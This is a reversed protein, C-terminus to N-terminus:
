WRLRYFKKAATTPVSLPSMATPLATWNGNLEDAAELQGANWTLTISGSSRAIRLAGSQGTATFYHRAVQAPSLATSYIAAEDIGGQFFRETGTGRAGIAWDANVLLAGVTNTARAVLAANRYLNWAVGDYTAVLHVWNGIDAAPVAYTVVRNAGDYAGAQYQGGSVRLLLETTPTASYGHALINGYGGGSYNTAPKVWAELSVQGSFNLTAQNSITVSQSAGDFEVSTGTLPTAGPMGQVPFGQYTGDCVGFNYLEVATMTYNTDDLPYYAAPADAMVAGKYGGTPLPVVTLTATASTAQGVGNSVVVSYSGGDTSQLAAFALSAATAGAVPAGGKLWQYSLPYSGQAVVRLTFPGGAYRTASAPDQSITPPTSNGFKGVSYHLMVEDASLTRWYVVADDVTGSFFDGATTYTLGAGIRLPWVATPKAVVTQSGALQGNVYLRKSTGDYTAVVHQWEGVAVSGANLDNWIENITDNQNGTRFQWATGSSALEYGRSLFRSRSCIVAHRGSTSSPQVWAELTYGGDFQLAASYPVEVYNNAGFTGATDADGGIAGPTQLNGGAFDVYSGAHLTTQDVATAAGNLEGLRWYGAPGGAMVLAAYTSAPVSLVRLSAPASTAVQGALMVRVSYDAVDGASAGLISCTSSTAVSIEAGGKLWQYTYGTSDAPMTISFTANSGTLVSQERPNIAPTTWTLNATSSLTGGYPNTVGVSYTGIDAATVPSINLISNTCNALNSGNRKWRYSIPPSGASLGVSFSVSTNTVGLLAEVNIPQQGIAPATGSGFVLQQIDSDSLQHNYIRVDDMYGGCPGTSHISVGLQVPLITGSASTALLTGLNASAVITQRNGDVYLVVNSMRAANPCTMAVHHWNGDAVVTNGVMNAGAIEFRLKGRPTSGTSDLTLTYRYTNAATSGYSVLCGGPASANTQYAAPFKVWACVTRSTAGPPGYFDTVVKAISGVPFDLYAQTGGESAPIPPLDTTSWLPASGAVLTGTNTGVSSAITDVWPAAAGEDLKFHALLDARATSAFLGVCAASIIGLIQKM